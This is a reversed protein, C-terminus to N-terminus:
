MEYKNSTQFRINKNLNIMNNATFPYKNYLLYFLVYISWVDIKYDYYQSIVQEPSMFYPTGILTNTIKNFNLFKSIGFDCIKINGKKSILINAPKIDRHIINNIHLSSIGVCIKLFIKIIEHENIIKNKKIYDDLDGDDIYETIICIRNKYIFLDYFKLLFDNNNILLIKKENLICIKNYRDINNIKITKLFYLLNNKINEVLYIKGYSGKNLFKIIKYNDM